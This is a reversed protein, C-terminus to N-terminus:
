AAEADRRRDRRGPKAKACRRSSSACARGSRCQRARDQVGDDLKASRDAPVNEAISDTASAVLMEAVADVSVQRPPAPVATSINNLSTGARAQRGVFGTGMLSKCRRNHLPECARVLRQRAPLGRFRSRGPIVSCSMRVARLVPRRCRATSRSYEGAVRKQESIMTASVKFDGCEATVSTRDFTATRGCFVLAMRCAPAESRDATPTTSRRCMRSTTAPFTFVGAENLRDSSPPLAESEDLLAVSSSTSGTLRHRFRRARM